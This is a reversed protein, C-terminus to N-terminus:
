RTGGSAPAAANTALAGSCSSGAGATCGFCHRGTVIPRQALRTLGEEDLDRVHRPWGAAIPLELMQNFDCDYLNGQWDVSILSRCMLEAVTAPNFADALRRVYSELKDAAVLDALFRSIPLNTITILRHFEIGHRQRLERRYDAELQAQPPPLTPGLPNYVLTLRLPSGELGYGLLNLRQLAAISREFVREGRQRDVNEELYCPLSAIIEVEHSALFSALDAQSPTELITLNCRDIVRCGLARASEVLWRFQPCLEPAGGTIDVTGVKARRAVDICAEAVERSMTERRDPGADVHCHRCTQNCVKGVNIQLTDIRAARLEASNSQSECRAALRESFRPVDALSELLKVQTRPDALPSAQRLLTLETVACRGEERSETQRTARKCGGRAAGNRPAAVRTRVSPRKTDQRKVASRIRAAVLTM